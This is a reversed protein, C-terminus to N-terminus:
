WTHFKARQEHDWSFIPLPHAETNFVWKDLSIPDEDLFMLYLYKLTEALFFSQMEDRPRPPTSTADWLASYGSEVKTHKEMAEFMAWGRDRWREENTVRWMFYVSEVVEPRLIYEPRRITYDRALISTNRVPEKEGVGPPIGQQGTERWTDMAEIWPNGTARLWWEKPHDRDKPPPVVFGVQETGLGNVGDAYLLWCTEALGTAAWMHLDRLDFNHLKDYHPLTSNRKKTFASEPLTHVGLALLGPLFCSLHELKHSPINHPGSIDTVYLLSRTPSLYLLNTIIYDVTQLYLELSKTDNKASLLYYKLLYEHASDAGGGLARESDSAEGTRLDIHTPLMGLSSFNVNYLRNVVNSAKDYHEKKGTVHALYAYEVQCSGVEAISAIHKSFNPIGKVLNVSNVPLGTPTDFAPALATALEDAKDLFITENTLAYASLLGGMYRIVTEFFNVNTNLMLESPSHTNLTPKFNLKSVIELAQEYHKDLKMFLMTDIADVATVGWGNFMDTSRNSMPRLEDHPAAHKMYNDFAFVFANRVKRARDAWNREPPIRAVEQETSDNDLWHLHHPFRPGRNYHITITYAALFVLGFVIAYRTSLRPLLM